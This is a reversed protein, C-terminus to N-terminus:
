AESPDEEEEMEEDEVDWEEDEPDVEPAAWEAENRPVAGM